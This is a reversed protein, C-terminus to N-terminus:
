DHMVYDEMLENYAGIEYNSFRMGDWTEAYLTDKFYSKAPDLVSNYSEELRYVLEPLKDSNIDSFWANRESLFNGGGIKYNLSQNAVFTQSNNDFIFAQTQYTQFDGYEGIFFLKHKDLLDSQAIAFHQKSSDMKAVQMWEPGIAAKMTQYDIPAKSYPEEIHGGYTLASCDLKSPMEMDQFLLVFRAFDPHTEIRPATKNTNPSCSILLMAALLALYINKM